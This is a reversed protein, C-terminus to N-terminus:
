TQLVAAQLTGSAVVAEVLASRCFYPSPALSCSGSGDSFVLNKDSSSSCNETRPTSSSGHSGDTGTPMHGGCDPNSSCPGPENLYFRDPLWEYRVGRLEIVIGAPAKMPVSTVM